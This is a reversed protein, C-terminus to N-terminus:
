PEGPGISSIEDQTKRPGRAPRKPASRESAQSPPEAPEASLEEPAAAEPVEAVEGVPEDDPVLPTEPEAVARGRVRLLRYLLNAM